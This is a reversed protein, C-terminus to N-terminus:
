QSVKMAPALKSAPGQDVVMFVAKRATDYGCNNQADDGCSKKVDTIIEGSVVDSMTAFLTWRVNKDIVVKEFTLETNPILISLDITHNTRNISTSESIYNGKWNSPDVVGCLNRSQPNVLAELDKPFCSMDLKMRMLGSSVEQMKSLLLLGKSDGFSINSALLITLLSVIALSIVAEFLTFGANKIYFKPKHVRVKL